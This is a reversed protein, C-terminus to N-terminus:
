DWVVQFVKVFRSGEQTKTLPVFHKMGRGNLFYLKVFLSCAVPRNLQLCWYGEENELIFISFSVNAEQFTVERIQRDEIYFLSQPIQGTSSFLKRDTLRYSFGNDFNVTDEKKEGLRPEQYFGVQNSMWRVRDKPRLALAQAYLQQVRLPDEGAQRLAEFIEHAPKNHLSALISGKVFDWRALYSVSTMKFALSDDVILVATGPRRFLVAIVQKACSESLFRSLFDEAEQKSCGLIHNFLFYTKYSDQIETNMLDFAELGGNNLMRLIGLARTEDEELFVRALWYAQPLNQTQNDVVVRRESIAKVWHGFDWWTYVITQPHTNEKIWFLANYWNDRMIPLIRRAAAWGNYAMGLIMMVLLFSFCYKLAMIRKKTPMNRKIFNYCARLWWGLGWGLPILLFILFRMGQTAAYAMSLAWAVIVAMWHRKYLPDRGLFLHWTLGIISVCAAGAIWWGGMFQLSQFLSLKSLEGVTAFANPWIQRGFENRLTWIGKIHEAFLQLPGLGCLIIICVCSFLLLTGLLILHERILRWKELSSMRKVVLLSLAFLVESSVLIGIVIGWGNWTAAFLGLLGSALMMNLWRRKPNRTAFIFLYWRVVLACLLLSLSDKDFWGAMSREMFVPALGVFMVGVFSGVWGARESFVLYLIILLILTFLLPIYFIFSWLPVPSFILCAKYLAATLYYLLQDWLVPAGSPALMLEDWPRGDKLSDGPQGHKLINRVYRAFQWPDYELLYTQGSGDQFTRKLSSYLNSVEQKFRNPNALQFPLSNVPNRSWAAEIMQNAQKKLQPLYVPTLRYALNIALIFFLGAGILVSRYKSQRTKM